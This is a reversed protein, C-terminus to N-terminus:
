KYGIVMFRNYKELKLTGSYLVQSLGLKAEFTEVNPQCKIHGTGELFDNNQVVVLTGEPVTQIWAEFDVHESSTNIVTNPRDSLEFLKGDYNSATYTQGEYITDFMDRTAGKFKWGDILSAYNILDAARACRENIDFSRIKEFPLEHAIMHALSGIWGGEIFVIGLNIGTRGLEEVLWQKSRMQGHSFVDVWGLDKDYQIAKRLQELYDDVDHIFDVGYALHVFFESELLGSILALNKASRDVDVAKSLIKRFYLVDQPTAPKSALLSVAKDPEKFDLEMLNKINILGKPDAALIKVLEFSVRSPLAFKHSFVERLYRINDADAQVLQTLKVIGIVTEPDILGDELTAEELVQLFTNFTEVSDFQDVVKVLQLVTASPDVFRNLLFSVRHFAESPTIVMFGKSDNKSGILTM